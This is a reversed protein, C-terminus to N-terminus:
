RYLRICNYLKSPALFLPVGTRATHLTRLGGDRDGFLFFRPGAIKNTLGILVRVLECLNVVTGFIRSRRTGLSLEVM